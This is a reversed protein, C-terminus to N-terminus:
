KAKEVYTADRTDVVVIDGPNIFLPSKLTLGTELTIEKSPNNASDGRVAPPADTVLLKVKLPLKINLPKGNFQIIEVMGEPKIFKLAHGVIKPDLTFQEFTLTDMFVAETGQVYLLQAPTADLRAPEIKEDGRFTQEFQAGSVLNKLTTRLIASGRGQKSHEAKVVEFPISDIEVLMGSKVENLNLM